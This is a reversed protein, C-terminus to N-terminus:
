LSTKLSLQIKFYAYVCSRALPPPYIEKLKILSSLFAYRWYNKSYSQTLYPLVTPVAPKRFFTLRLLNTKPEPGRQLLERIQDSYFCLYALTLQFLLLNYFNNNNHKVSTNLDSTHRHTSHRHLFSRHSSLGHRLDDDTLLM